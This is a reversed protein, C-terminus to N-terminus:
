VNAEISGFVQTVTRSTLRHRVVTVEKV